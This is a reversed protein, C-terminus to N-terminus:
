AAGAQPLSRLLLPRVLGLFETAQAEWGLVSHPLTGRDPRACEARVAQRVQEVGAGIPLTRVADWAGHETAGGAESQIVRIGRALAERLTLGFTEHWQSLFLLVDIEAFLGDITRQDYGPRIEWEGGLGALSRDRWWSGDLSGDVVLGRVGTGPLGAFADRILPWGKMRSPGGLFAFTVRPDRARRVAQADFFRPEPLTVGNEWVVFRNPALGSRIHLDRAFASPATVLDALAALRALRESRTRARTIDDVCGRCAAAIVPDQSCARGDGRLMFQRECLWWYDHTSLVVPIDLAKLAGICDAGIEQLCHLHAVDPEIRRAIASVREAVQPNAYHEAYSRGPPLNILYNAIGGTECLLTAYAPLDDRCVASIATVRVDHDRVLARAVEEAVVTAGGYSQPAFHINIVLVHM